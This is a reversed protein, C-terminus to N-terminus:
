AEERHGARARHGGLGMANNFKRGCVNCQPKVQPPEKTRDRRWQRVESRPVEIGDNGVRVMDTAQDYELPVAASTFEVAPGIGPVDVQTAFKVASLKM